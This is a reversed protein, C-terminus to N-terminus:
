ALGMKSKIRMIAPMSCVSPRNGNLAACTEAIYIDAAAYEEYAFTTNFSKLQSFVQQHSLYTLPLKNQSSTYSTGNGFVVADAGINLSSGWFTFPTGQFSGTSNMFDMAAKYGQDPANAAFFTIPDTSQPFQFGSTIRSDYEATFLNIYNSSYENGFSASSPTTYNQPAWYLTPVDGDGLSSYGTYLNNFTGFRSLALAMAWRNEGCYICSIAGIYIVSPKGNIVLANYQMPHGLSAEFLPGVYADNYAQEGNLSVNLMMEGAAEFNSDPANNIVSLEQQPLPANIGTLRTGFPQGKVALSVYPYVIYLAMAAIAVALLAVTIKLSRIQSGYRSKGPM